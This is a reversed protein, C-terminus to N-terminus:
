LARYFRHGTLRLRCADHDHLQPNRKLREISPAAATDPPDRPPGPSPDARLILRHTVQFALNLIGLLLFRDDFFRHGEDALALPLIGTSKRM